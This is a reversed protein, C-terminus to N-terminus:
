QGGTDGGTEPPWDFTWELPLKPASAPIAKIVIREAQFDDPLQLVGKIVQFYRFRYAIDADGNETLDALGLQRPKGNQLGELTLRITGRAVPNKIGGQTLMFSYRYRQVGLAPKLEFNQAELGVKNREPSLIGRYITLEEELGRIQAELGSREQTYLAYAEADIRRSSEIQALNRELEENRMELTDVRQRLHAREARLAALEDARDSADGTMGLCYIEWGALLLAAAAMGILLWLKWKELILLETRKGNM